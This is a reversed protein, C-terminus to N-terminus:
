NGEGEEALWAKRLSVTTRKQLLAPVVPKLRCRAKTNEFAPRVKYSLSAKLEPDKGGCGGTHCCLGPGERRPQLLSCAPEESVSGIILALPM